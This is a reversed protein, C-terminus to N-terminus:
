PAVENLFAAFRTLAERDRLNYVDVGHAVACRMAYGTGGDDLGAPTWCVLFQSPSDGDPGLVQQMDRALLAKTHADMLDFPPRNPPIHKRAEDYAWRPVRKAKFIIKHEGAGREFARDAGKAGGSRLTFGAKYLRVAIAFLAEQEAQPTSRSGVGTYHRRRALEKWAKEALQDKSM